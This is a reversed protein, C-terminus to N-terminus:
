MISRAPWSFGGTAAVARDTGSHLLPLRLAARTPEVTIRNKGSTLAIITGVAATTFLGVAVGYSLMARNYDKQGDYVAGAIGAGCGALGFLLGITLGAVAQGARPQRLTATAPAPPIVLRTQYDSPGKVAIDVTGSPVDLACPVDCHYTDKENRITLAYPRSEHQAASAFQVNVPAGAPVYAPVGGCGGLLTLLPIAHAFLHKTAM